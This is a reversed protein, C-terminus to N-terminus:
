IYDITFTYNDYELNSLDDTLDLSDKDILYLITLVCDCGDLDKCEISASMEEQEFCEDIVRNTFECNIEKVKQINEQSMILEIEEETISDSKINCYM